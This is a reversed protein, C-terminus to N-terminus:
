LGGGGPTENGGPTIVTDDGSTTIVDEVAFKEVNVEPEQFLKKMKRDGKKLSLQKYTEAILLILKQWIVM